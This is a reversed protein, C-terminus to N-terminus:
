PPKSGLKREKANQTKPLFRCCGTPTLFGPIRDEIRQEEAIEWTRIRDASPHLSSLRFLICDQFSRSPGIQLCFPLLGFHECTKIAPFKDSFETSFERLWSKPPLLL